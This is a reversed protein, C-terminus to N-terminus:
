DQLLDDIYGKIKESIYDISYDKKIIDWERKTLGMSTILSELDYGNCKHFFGLLQQEANDIMRNNKCNEDFHIIIGLSNRGILGVKEGKKIKLNIAKIEDRTTKESILIGKKLDM